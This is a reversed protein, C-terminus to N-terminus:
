KKELYLNYFFLLLIKFWIYKKIKEKDKNIIKLINRLDRELFPNIEFDKKNFIFLDFGLERSLTLDDYIISDKKKILIL